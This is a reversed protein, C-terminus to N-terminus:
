YRNQAIYYDQNPGKTGYGVLFLMHDLKKPSCEPDYYIGSTYFLFSPQSADVYAGLPGVNALALTLETENGSSVTKVDSVQAAVYKADFRCKNDRNEFPYAQETEIGKNSKVYFFSNYPSGGECGTNGASQSCDLIQQASLPVLKGSAICSM